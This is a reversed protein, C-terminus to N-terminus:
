VPTAAVDGDLQLVAGEFGLIGAMIAVILGATPEARHHGFPHGEDAKKSSVKVAIFISISSIVDTLSNFADSMVALSNSLLGVFIKAVFLLTNFFIGILTIQEKKQM